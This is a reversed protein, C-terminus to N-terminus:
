KPEDVVDIIAIWANAQEPDDLVSADQEAEENIAIVNGAFPTSFDSVSKEGEVEILSDGKKLIQGVKPLNAFTINGLEEQAQNTFGIKYGVDLKLLWLNDVVKIEEAM